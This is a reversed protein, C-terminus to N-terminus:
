RSKPVIDVGGWSDPVLDGNSRGDPVMDIESPFDKSVDSNGRRERAPAIPLPLELLCEEQHQQRLATPIFWNSSKEKTKTSRAMDIRGLEIEPWASAKGGSNPVRKDIRSVHIGM